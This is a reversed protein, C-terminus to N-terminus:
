VIIILYMTDYQVMSCQVMNYWVVVGLVVDDCLM